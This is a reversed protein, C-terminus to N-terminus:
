FDADSAERGINDTGLDHVHEPNFQDPSVDPMEEEDPWTGLGVLQGSNPSPPNPLSSTSQTMSDPDGPENSMSSPSQSLRIPPMGAVGHEFLAAPFADHDNNYYWRWLSHSSSHFQGSAELHGEVGEEGAVDDRLLEDPDNVAPAQAADSEFDGNAAAICM